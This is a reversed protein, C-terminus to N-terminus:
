RSNLVKLRIEIEKLIHREVTRYAKAMNNAGESLENNAFWGTEKQAIAVQEMQEAMHRTFNLIEQEIPKEWSFVFKTKEIRVKKEPKPSKCDSCDKSEQESGIFSHLKCYKKEKKNM